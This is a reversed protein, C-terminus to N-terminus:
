PAPPSLVKGLQTAGSLYYVSDTAGAGSALVVSQKTNVVLHHTGTGAQTQIRNGEGTDSAGMGYNVIYTNDGGRACWPMAAPWRSSPATASPWRTARLVGNADSGRQLAGQAILGLQWAAQSVVVTSSSTTGDPNLQAQMGPLLTYAGSLGANLADQSYRIELQGQANLSADLAYLYDWRTSTDSAALLKGANPGEVAVRLPAGAADVMVSAKIADILDQITRIGELGVDVRANGATPFLLSLAPGNSAQYGSKLDSLYTKTTVGTFGTTDVVRGNDQVTIAFDNVNTFTSVLTQGGSAAFTLRGNTVTLSNAGTAVRITNDGASGIVDSVYANGIIFTNARGASGDISVAGSSPPISGTATTGAWWRPPRLTASSRDPSTPPAASSGATGARAPTAPACPWPWGAGKRADADAKLEAATAGTLGDAMAVLETSANLGTGGTIDYVGGLLIIQHQRNAGNGAKIVGGSMLGSVLVTNGSPRPM